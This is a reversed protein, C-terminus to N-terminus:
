DTNTPPMALVELAKVVFVVFTGGVQTRGPPVESLPTSIFYNVCEIIKEIIGTYEYLM